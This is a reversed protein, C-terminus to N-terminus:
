MATAGGILQGRDACNLSMQDGFDTPGVGCRAPFQVENGFGFISVSRINNAKGRKRFSVDPRIALSVDPPGPPTDGMIDGRTDGTICYLSLRVLPSASPPGGSPPM